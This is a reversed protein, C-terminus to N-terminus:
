MQNVTCLYASIMLICVKESFFIGELFYKKKASLEIARGAIYM